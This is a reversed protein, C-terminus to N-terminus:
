HRFEGCSHRTQQAARVPHLRARDVLIRRMMESAISLFQARNRGIAREQDVLRLYVEHVLSNSSTSSWISRLAEIETLVAYRYRFAVKLLARWM